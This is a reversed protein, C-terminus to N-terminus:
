FNIIGFGRWKIRATSKKDWHGVYLRGDGIAEPYNNWQLDQYSLQSLVRDVEVDTLLAEDSDIPKSTGEVYM